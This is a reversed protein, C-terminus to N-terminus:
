RSAEVPSSFNGLMFPAMMFFTSGACGSILLIVTSLRSSDMLFTSAAPPLITLGFCAIGPTPHSAKKESGSPLIWPIICASLFAPYSGNVVYSLRHVIYKHNTEKLQSLIDFRKDHYGKSLRLTCVGPTM